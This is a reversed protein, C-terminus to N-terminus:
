GIRCMFKCMLEIIRYKVENALMLRPKSTKNLSWLLVLFIAKAKSLKPTANHDNPM